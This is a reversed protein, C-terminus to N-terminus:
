NSKKIDYILERKKEKKNKYLLYISAFSSTFLGLFIWNLVQLEWLSKKIENVSYYTRLIGDLDNLQQNKLPLSVVLVPEPSSKVEDLQNLSAQLLKGSSKGNYGKFDFDNPIRYNQSIKKNQAELFLNNKLDIM